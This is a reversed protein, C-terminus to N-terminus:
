SAQKKLELKKAVEIKFNRFQIILFFLIIPNVLSVILIILTQSTIFALTLWDASNFNPSLYDNQLLAKDLVPISKLDSKKEEGALQTQTNSVKEPLSAPVFSMPTGFEQVTIIALHGEIFGQKVAVGIEQFDKNLINKKHTPSKMWAAHQDETNKFDIALNEGAYRYDYGAKEMWFWPTKGSPSNHAFYKEKLMDEVKAEAAQSLKKNEALVELNEAQRSANVMEIVEKPTIAAEQNASVKLSFSFFLIVALITIAFIKQTKKLKKGM